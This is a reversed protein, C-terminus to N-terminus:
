AKQADKKLIIMSVMVPYIYCAFAEAAWEFVLKRAYYIIESSSFGISLYMTLIPVDDMIFFIVACTLSLVTLVIVARAGKKSRNILLLLMAAIIPIERIIHSIIPFDPIIKIISAALIIGCWVKHQEKKVALLVICAASLLIAIWSFVSNKPLCCSITCCCSIISILRLKSYKDMTM